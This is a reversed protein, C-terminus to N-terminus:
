GNTKVEKEKDINSTDPHIGIHSDNSSQSDGEVKNATEYDPMEDLKEVNLSERSNDGQKPLLDKQKHSMKELPINEEKVIELGKEKIEKTTLLPDKREEDQPEEPLDSETFQKEINDLLKRQQILGLYQVGTNLIAGILIIGVWWLNKWGYISVALGLFLGTLMIRTGGIQVKIKQLPNITEIGSKWNKLFEKFSLKEGKKNKWFYM